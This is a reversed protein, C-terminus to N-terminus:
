TISVNWGKPFGKMYEMVKRKADGIPVHNGNVIIGGDEGGRYGARIGAPYAKKSIPDYYWMKAYDFLEKYTEKDSESLNKLVSDGSVVKYTAAPLDYEFENNHLSVDFKVVSNIGPKVWRTGDYYAAENGGLATAESTATYNVKAWDTNTGTTGIKVYDGTETSVLEGAEKGSFMDGSYAGSYQENPIGATGDAAGPQGTIATPTPEKERGLFVDWAPNSQDYSITGDSHMTMGGTAVINTFALRLGEVGTQGAYGKWTTEWDEGLTGSAIDKMTQPSMAHVTTYIPDKALLMGDVTNGSWEAFNGPSGQAEWAAKLNKIIVPDNGAEEVTIDPRQELLTAVTGMSDAFIASSQADKMKSYDVKIGQTAWIAEAGDYDGAAAATTAADKAVGYDFVQNRYAVDVGYRRTDERFKAMDLNYYDGKLGLEENFQRVGEEFIKNSETKISNFDALTLDSDYEKVITDYGIGKDILDIVQNVRTAGLNQRLQDLNLEMGEETLGRIRTQYARDEKLADISPRNGTIKEFVGAANEYDGMALLHDFEKWDQEAGYQERENAFISQKMGMNFVSETADMAMGIAQEALRGALEAQAAGSDRLASAMATRKQGETMNPSNALQLATITMQTQLRPDLQQFATNAINRMVESDGRMIDAMKEVAEGAVKEGPLVPKTKDVVAAGAGAGAEEGAEEGAGTEEFDEPVDNELAMMGGEPPGEDLDGTPYGGPYTTPMDSAGQITRGSGSPSPKAPTTAQFEPATGKMVQDYTATQWDITKGTDPGYGLETEIATRQDATKWVDSALQSGTMSGSPSNPDYRGTQYGQIKKGYRYGPVAEKGAEMKQLRRQGGLENAPIVEFNGQEGINVQEGEHITKPGNNTQLLHTPRNAELKGNEGMGTNFSMPRRAIMGGQIPGQQGSKYYEVMQKLQPDNKIEEVWSPKPM